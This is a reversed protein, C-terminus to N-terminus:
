ILHYSFNGYWNRTSLQFSWRNTSTGKRAASQMKRCLKGFHILFSDVIADAIARDDIVEDSNSENEREVLNRNEMEQSTSTITLRLVVVPSSPQWELLSNSFDSSSQVTCFTVTLMLWGQSIDHFTISHRYSSQSTPVFCSNTCHM